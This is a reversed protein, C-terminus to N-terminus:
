IQIALDPRDLHELIVNLLEADDDFGYVSQLDGDEDDNEVYYYCAAQILRNRHDGEGEWQENLLTLCCRAICDALNIDLDGRRNAVRAIEDAYDNILAVLEHKPALPMNYLDSVPQRLTDPLAELLQVPRSEKESNM